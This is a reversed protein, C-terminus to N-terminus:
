TGDTNLLLRLEPRGTNADHELHVFVGMPSFAPDFAVPATFGEPWSLYCCWEPLQTWAQLPPLVARNWSTAEVRDPSRLERVAEDAVDLEPLYVGRGLRWETLASVRGLEEGPNVSRSTLYAHVAAMPLWCWDAWTVGDSRSSDLLQGCVALADPYRRRSERLLGDVQEAAPRPSM